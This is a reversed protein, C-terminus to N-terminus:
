WELGRLLLDCCQDAVGLDAAQKGTLADLCLHGLLLVVAHHAIVDPDADDRFYGHGQGYSVIRSFRDELEAVISRALDGALGGGAAGQTVLRVMHPREMLALYVARIELRLRMTARTEAAHETSMERLEALSEDMVARYLGDKSGFYYFVLQKNVDARDAIRQVRAGALGYQAFEELAAAVIWARRGTDVREVMQNVLSNTSQGPTLNDARRNRRTRLWGLTPRM